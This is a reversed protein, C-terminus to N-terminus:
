PCPRSYKQRAKCRCYPPRVRHLCTVKLSRNKYRGILSYSVLGPQNIIKTKCDNKWLKDLSPLNRPTGSFILDILSSVSIQVLTRRIVVINSYKTIRLLVSRAGVCIIQIVVTCCEATFKVLYSGSKAMICGLISKFSYM